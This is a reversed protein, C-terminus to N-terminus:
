DCDIMKITLKETIQGIFLLILLHSNNPLKESLIKFFAIAKKSVIDIFSDMEVLVVVDEECAVTIKIKKDLVPQLLIRIPQDPFYTSFTKGNKIAVVGEVLYAWLQDVYDWMSSDILMVGNVKLEIAGEIYDEDEISNDYIEIPVFEDKNKIYSEVTIM